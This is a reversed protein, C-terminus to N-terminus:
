DVRLTIAPDVRTARRAPIWTAAAVVGLLISAIGCGILWLNVQPGIVFGQLQLLRMGVISLPLGIVLAMVGIRLGSGVFMRVLRAPSAGVAIRIGIERTRQQVALAVVGYLGLSALLLALAGGAGAVAAMRLAERNDDADMQAVTRALSVPLLPARSDILQRLTPIFPEAPGRTRVFIRDRRWEKGSASYVRFTPTGSGAGADFRRRLFPQSADYVGVVTMTASDHAMGQLMPPAITRGIANTGGWLASALDSGVVVPVSRTVATDAMVVDRGQLLAVDNLAFWGPASGEVNVIARVNPAVIRGADFQRAEPVADIVDPHEAIRPTLADVAETRQGQVGTRMLPRLGVVVVQRTLEPIRQRYSGYVLALMTALIVLLPQSLTIQATVFTRQLGSRITSGAGSDRIAGAVAGRTAHLAPSLGFVIGTGAALALTFAFTGADPAVAVGGLDSIFTRGAWTLLWWALVLGAGGGVVALLTSETILQRLIRVRSAGLSLRVAIEHRRAVAAAVMLASVSMWGVLLILMGIVAMAGFGLLMETRDAGPPIAGIALVDATRAMGVRTASDPLTTVLLQRVLATGREGPVGPAMRAVLQLTPNDNLWRPSERAIDARASLPIWLGPDNMERLAGQFRPPAVGVVRVPVDNVLVSRGIADPADGFLQAALAYSTVATMAAPAAESAERVFGPGAIMPVRLTAFFNSSVFQAGVGRAPVSDRGGIVVADAMYAAVEEFVDRREALGSLEPLTFGRPSWQGTRTPRERAWIRTLAAADPVAPAPRVFFGQFASFIVTNAGTSGALVTVILGVAAKHRAFYRLAFRLDGAVDDVWRAGRADRAQDQILSVNGFERRAALRADAPSLGGAVLRATARDLHEQMEAQMERELRRRGLIARLRLRVRTLTHTM